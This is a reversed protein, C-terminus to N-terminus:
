ASVYSIIIAFKLIAAAMKDTQAKMWESERELPWQVLKTGIALVTERSGVSQHRTRDAM